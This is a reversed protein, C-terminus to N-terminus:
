REFRRKELLVAGSHTGITYASRFEGEVGVKASDRPAGGGRAVVLLKGTGDNIEYTGYGLIGVAGSVTGAIRVTKGDYRSPDDLLTKIPLIGGKCGALLTIAFTLGILGLVLANLKKM